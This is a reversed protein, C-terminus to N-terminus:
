FSAKNLSCSLNTMYQEISKKFFVPFTTVGILFAIVTSRLRPLYKTWISEIGESSIDGIPKVFSFLEKDLFADYLM